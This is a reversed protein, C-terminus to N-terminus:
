RRPRLCVGYSAQPFATTLPGPAVGPHAREKLLPADGLQDAEGVAEACEADDNSPRRAGPGDIENEQVSAITQTSFQSADDDVFDFESSISNEDDNSSNEAEELLDEICAEGAVASSM